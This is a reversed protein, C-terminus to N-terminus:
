SRAKFRRPIAYGPRRVGCHGCCAAAAWSSPRSCAAACSSSRMFAGSPGGIQRRDKAYGIATDLLSQAAGLADAAALVLVDDHLAAVSQDGAAGLRRGPADDFNVRFVKHTNAIGPVASLQLRATPM